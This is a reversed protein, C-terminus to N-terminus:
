EGVKTYQFGIRLAKTAISLEGLLSLVELWYLVKHCMVRSFAELVKENFPTKHIHNFWYTSSYALPPLVGESVRLSINPVDVNLCHSDELACINFKLDNNLIQL